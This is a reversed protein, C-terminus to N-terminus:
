CFCLISIKNNMIEERKVKMEMFIFIQIHLSIMTTFISTLFISFMLKKRPEDRQWAACNFNFPSKSSLKSCLHSTLYQRKQRRCKYTNIPHHSSCKATEETKSTKTTSITRKIVTRRLSLAPKITPIHIVFKWMVRFLGFSRKKHAANRPEMIQLNGMDVASDM